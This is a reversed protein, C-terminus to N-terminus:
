KKLREILARYVTEARSLEIDESPSPQKVESGMAEQIEELTIPRLLGERIIERAGPLVVDKLKRGKM